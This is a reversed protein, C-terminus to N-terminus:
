DGFDVELVNAIIDRHKRLIPRKGQLKLTLNTPSIGVLRCIQLQSMWKDHLGIEIRTRYRSQLIDKRM